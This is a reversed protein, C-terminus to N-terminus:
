FSLDIEFYVIGICVSGLIELPLPLWVIFNPCNISCLMVFMKGSFGYLFYLSSVIELCKELIDFNFM